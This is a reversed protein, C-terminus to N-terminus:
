SRLPSFECLGMSAVKSNDYSYNEQALKATQPSITIQSSSFISHIRQWLLAITLMIGSAPTTPAKKQFALAVEEFFKRYAINEKNLIFRENWRGKQYIRAVLEAADRVDIYNISGKPYFKNEQIIYDYIKTSSRQDTLKGLLVSPNFVMVELGEQAGRWVELEALYKSIGYATNLPSPTWKHTEDILNIGPSRGLAAVSSIFLLKGIGKQLMVNVVNATGNVNVEILQDRDGAEYSVMGAAHVILDMGEFAEELSQYDRIDGDHWIIKEALEGLLDLKSSQRKLGHLEGLGFFQRALYSGMLGTVGTILIKM